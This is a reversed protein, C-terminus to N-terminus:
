EDEREFQSLAPRLSSCIGGERCERPQPLLSVQLLTTWSWRSSQESAYLVLSNPAKSPMFIWRTKKSAGIQNKYYDIIPGKQAEFGILRICYLVLSSCAFTGGDFGMHLLPSQKQNMIAFVAVGRFLGRCRHVVRVQVSQCVHGCRM